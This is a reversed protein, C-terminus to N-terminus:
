KHKSESISPLNKTLKDVVYIIATVATMRLTNLASDESEELRGLSALAITSTLYVGLLVLSAGELALFIKDRVPKEKIKQIIEKPRPIRREVM